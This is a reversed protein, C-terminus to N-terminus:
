LVSASRSSKSLRLVRQVCHNAAAICYWWPEGPEQSSRECAASSSLSAAQLSASRSCTQDKLATMFLMHPGQSCFCAVAHGEACRETRTRTQQWERRCLPQTPLAAYIVVQQAVARSCSADKLASRCMMHPHNSCLCAVVRRAACREARTRIQKWERRCLPQTPLAAYIVVQQAVARSCSADKLASRCM